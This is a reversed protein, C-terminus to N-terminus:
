WVDTRYTEGLCLSVPSSLEVCVCRDHHLRNGFKACAGYDDLPLLSAATPRSPLLCTVLRGGVVQDKAVTYRHM